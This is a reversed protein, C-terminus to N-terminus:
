PLHGWPFPLSSRFREIREILDAVASASASTRDAASREVDVLRAELQRWEESESHALELDVRVAHRLVRLMKIRDPLPATSVAPAYM